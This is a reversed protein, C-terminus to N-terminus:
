SVHLIRLHIINMNNSGLCLVSHFLPKAHVDPGGPSSLDVPCLQLYSSIPLNNSAHPMAEMCAERVTLGFGAGAGAVFKPRQQRSAQWRIYARPGPDMQM